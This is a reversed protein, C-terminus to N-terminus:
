GSRVVTLIAADDRLDGAAFRQVSALLRQTIEAASGGQRLARRVRGEGFFRIGSRAETVGDTYLLL